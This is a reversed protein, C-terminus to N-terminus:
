ANFILKIFIYWHIVFIGIYWSLLFLLGAQTLKRKINNYLFSLGPLSLALKTLVFSILSHEIPGRLAPNAEDIGFFSYWIMTALMDIGILILLLVVHRKSLSKPCFM